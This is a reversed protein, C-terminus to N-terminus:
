TVKDNMQVGKLDGTLKGLAVKDSARLSCRSSM